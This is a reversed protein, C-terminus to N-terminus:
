WYTAVKVVMKTTIMVAPMVLPRYAWPMLIGMTPSRGAPLSSSVLWWGSGVREECAVVQAWVALLMPGCKGAGEVRM